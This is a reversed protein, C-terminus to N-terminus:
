FKYSLGLKQFTALLLTLNSRIDYPTSATRCIKESRFTGPYLKLLIHLYVVGNGLQSLDTIKPLSPPQSANAWALLQTKTPNTQATKM